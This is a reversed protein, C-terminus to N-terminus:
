VMVSDQEAMRLGLAVAECNNVKRLQSYSKSYEYVGWVGVGAFWNLVCLHVEEQQHIGSCMYYNVTECECVKLTFM